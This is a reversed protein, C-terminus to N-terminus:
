QKGAPTAEKTKADGGCSGEKVKSAGCSGEKAKSPANAAGAESKKDAGCKGEGCKGDKLKAGAEALRASAPIEKIAFPNEVAHAVPALSISAAIVSGLSLSLTKNKM